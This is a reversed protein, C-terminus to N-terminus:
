SRCLLSEWIRLDRRHCAVRVSKQTTNTRRIYGLKAAMQMAAGMARGELNEDRGLEHWVDDTTLTPQKTAIERITTIAESQWETTSAEVRAIGIDRARESQEADFVDAGVGQPYGPHPSSLAMGSQERLCHGSCQHHCTGGDHPCRLREENPVEYGEAPWAPDTPFSGALEPEERSAAHPGASALEGSGGSSASASAPVEFLSMQNHSVARRAMTQTTVRPLQATLATARQPDKACASCVQKDALLPMDARCLVCFRRQYDKGYCAPSCYEEREHMTRSGCIRCLM